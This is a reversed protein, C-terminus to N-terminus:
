CAPSEEDPLRLRRRAEQTIAAQQERYHWFWERQEVPMAGERIAQEMDRLQARLEWRHRDRRNVWWLAVWLPATAALCAFAAVAPSNLFERMEV